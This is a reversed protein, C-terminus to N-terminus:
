LADTASTIPSLTQDDLSGTAGSARLDNGYRQVGSCTSTISLGYKAHNGSARKRVTNCTIRPYTINSSVRIGYYTNHQAAGSGIVLNGRLQPHLCDTNVWLGTRGSDYIENDYVMGYPSNDKVAIGEGAPRYIRNRMVRFGDWCYTQIAADAVDYVRNREVTIGKYRLGETAAHSGVARPWEQTGPTGSGGFWCGVVTVDASMTGDYPGGWPYAVAGYASDIQVAESFGRDGTHWFGEFRVNEVLVRKSSNCDIGHWGPVDRVTLDRFVVDDAHAIAFACSYVQRQLANVDWTGGEVLLQGHGDYGGAGGGVPTNTLIPDDGGRIIRAGPALTIRRRPPTRLMQTSLYPRDPLYLWGEADLAAQLAASDDAVGDGVVGYQETVDIM